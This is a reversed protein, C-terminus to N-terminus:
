GRPKSFRLGAKVAQDWRMKAKLYQFSTPYQERKPEFEPASDVLAKMNADETTSSQDLLTYKTKSLDLDGLGLFNKQKSQAERLSQMLFSSQTTGFGITTECHEILEDLDASPIGYVGLNSACKVILMKWYESMPIQLKTFPNIVLYTPFDGAAAAWEALAPAKQAATKHPSHILRSLATERRNLRSMDHASRYGKLFADYNEKWNDLLVPINSLDCTEHSIVYHTFVEEPSTITNQKALIRSLPEMNQAVISDTIKTIRASTRFDILDSSRFLALFLLYSDIKTLEGAGWKNLCTLLKRQPVCFIPHSSERSYLGLPFHDCSFEIGSYACLIKM